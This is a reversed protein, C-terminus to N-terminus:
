APIGMSASGQQRAATCRCCATDAANEDALIILHMLTFKKKNRNATFGPKM